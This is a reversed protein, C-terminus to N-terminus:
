VCVVRAIRSRKPPGSASSPDKSPPRKLRHRDRPPTAHMTEDYPIAKHFDEISEKCGSLNKIPEWTPNPYGRWHVLYHLGDRKKWCDSIHDVEYIDPTQESIPPPSQQRYAQHEESTMYYPKFQRVNWVTSCGPPLGELEFTHPTIQRVIRFPGVYPADLKRTARFCKSPLLVYDDINYIMPKQSAKAGAAKENAANICDHATSIASHLDSLFKSADGNYLDQPLEPNLLSAVTTPHRGYNLFFPTTKTASHVTNNYAFEFLHLYQQWDDKRSNVFARLGEVITRNAREVQGNGQPYYPTTNIVKTRLATFVHKWFSSTFQPGQDSLLRHPLGHHRFVHEIFLRAAQEASLQQPCPALRLMKSLKDTFVLICTNADPPSPSNTIFPGLIDLSVTHWRAPATIPSLPPQPPHKVVKNRMCTDCTKVYDKVDQKMSPWYFGRSLFETTRDRGLHGAYATDHHEAILRSRLTPHKPILLRTGEFFVLDDKLTFNEAPNPSSLREYVKMYFPDTSRYQVIDSKLSDRAHKETSTLSLPFPSPDLPESFSPESSSPRSPSPESSSSPSSSSSASEVSAVTAQSPKSLALRSLVDAVTNDKGQIHEVSYSFQLCQSLWRARRDHLDTNSHTLLAVLPKHDTRILFHKHLYHRWKAMAYIVALWEKDLVPYNRESKSFTRSLYHVPHWGDEHQQELVAGIGFLSADCTIRTPLTSNYLSLVPAESLLQKITIVANSCEDHWQFPSTNSTLSHLPSAISAFHPVFHAYYNAMGLFRRVMTRSSLINPMASIAKLNASMPLIGKDSVHYGLFDIESVHFTCKEFNLKLQNERLRQFVERLHVLHQAESPSHVVIDDMYVQVFPLDKFIDTMVRQFSAPANILGMPMVVWEFLGLPTTFSTKFIDSPHMRIQYFGHRLDLRSFIKAGHMKDLVVDILPLPFKDPQTQANLGRYDVVLRLEGNKKSVFFVPSAWSSTSPRVWGKELWTDICERLHQLERPQLRYPSKRVPKAGDILPIAHQHSRNPPLSSPEQQVDSFEHLLTQVAPPLSELPKDEAAQAITVVYNSYNENEAPHARVQRATCLRITLSDTLHEADSYSSAWLYTCDADSVTLTGRDWDVRPNYKSLWDLGVLLDFSASNSVLPQLHSRHGQCQLQLPDTAFKITESTGNAFKSTIPQDLPRIVIGNRMAFQQSLISHDAGGDLLFSVPTKNITGEFVLQKPSDILSATKIVQAGISPQPPPALRDVFPSTISSAANTSTTVNKTNSKPFQNEKEKEKTKSASHNKKFAFSKTCEYIRNCKGGCSPCGSPKKQPCVKWGHSEGCIPCPRSATSSQQFSPQQSLFSATRKGSLRAYEAEDERVCVDEIEDISLDETGRLQQLRTLAARCHPKVNGYVINFLLVNPIPPIRIRIQRLENFYARASKQQRLGYLLKQTDATSANWQVFRQRFAIQFDEWSALLQQSRNNNAAELWWLLASGRLHQVVLRVIDSDDLGNLTKLVSFINLFENVKAQNRTGDFTPYKVTKLSERYLQASSTSGNPAVSPARSSLALQQLASTLLDVAEQQKSRDQHQQLTEHPGLLQQQIDRPGSPGSFDSDAM